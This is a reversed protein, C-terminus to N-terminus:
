KLIAAIAKDLVPDRAALFDEVTPEVEIDPPNGAGEIPHDKADAVYGNSIRVVLGCPLTLYRAVGSLNGHTRTGVTVVRRASRLECTFLDAASGTVDNVLLAIPRTYQWPGAPALHEESRELDSHRPGSKIYSIATLTRKRLLRGVIRPQGFGGPNDRIDLLLGPTDRLAALARDFEDAVRDHDNFSEIRIYGLGSPHRGFHVFRQRTL